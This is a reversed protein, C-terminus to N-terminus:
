RLARRSSIAAVEAINRYPTWSRQWSALARTGHPPPLEAPAIVLMGAPPLGKAFRRIEQAQLRAETRCRTCTGRGAANVLTLPINVSLKGLRRRLREAEAAPLTAPRTVIIFATREPDTLLSRLRGLGQSLQLLVTGLQGVAVVPQYKLLISMLAKAWDHVLAPMELLRLAHGSPATDMVVLDTARSELADTVDIVAALEDIGPPALDILAHMVQRDQGADVGVSGLRSATLGEFVSDIAAAYRARIEKFRETADLERVLLNRPAGPVTAPLDSLRTGFVDSLSHAPDSSILLVQRAPAASALALSAAAACTSKGVGGKGGFLLLRVGAGDISSLVDNRRGGTDVARWRGRRATAARTRLRPAAGADIERGFEALAQVGRPEHVHAPVVTVPVGSLRSRLARVAAAELLTRRDCWDCPTRSPPTLRNVITDCVAIGASTLAAFADATEEVSMVEPLTVWSVHVRAPDRLLAHLDRGERDLSEILLDDADPSWAGRLAEVVLRHKAQMQDFASAMARLSQPMTLMRLTHGTPATDVVVSEYRGAHAIREIELLAALEDVGPLSLRLLRSVDERDLWTGRLVIREFSERRVSLWRELARAADIEVAYLVGHPLPVRRPVGSLRQEFADGLSPAPDTSIVLTRHGAAASTVAIAAACTTKGVGGKGGVFRFRAPPDTAPTIKGRSRRM